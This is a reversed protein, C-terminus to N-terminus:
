LSEKVNALFEKAYKGARSVSYEPADSYRAVDSLNQLLRDFVIVTEKLNIFRTNDTNTEGVPEIQGLMKQVVDYNTM